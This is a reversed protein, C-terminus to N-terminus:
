EVSEWEEGGCGGAARVTAYVRKGVEGGGGRGCGSGRLARDGRGEAETNM